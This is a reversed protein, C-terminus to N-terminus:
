KGGGTNMQALIEAIQSFHRGTRHLENVYNVVYKGSETFQVAKPNDGNECFISTVVRTHNEDCYYVEDGIMIEDESIVKLMNKLYWRSENRVDVRYPCDDDDDIKGIVGITGTPYLWPRGGCDELIEVRTGLKIENEKEYKEIKNIIQTGYKEDKFLYSYNIGFINELESVSYGGDSEDLIIKKVCNWMDDLGKNYFVSEAEACINNISNEINEKETNVVETLTKNSKM